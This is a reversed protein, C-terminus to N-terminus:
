SFVITEELPMRIVADNFNKTKLIWGSGSDSFDHTNTSCITDNLKKFM